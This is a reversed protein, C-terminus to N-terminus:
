IKKDPMNGLLRTFSEHVPIAIRKPEDDVVPPLTGVMKDQGNGIFGRVRDTYAELCGEFNPCDRKIQKLDESSAPEYTDNWGTYKHLHPTISIINKGNVFSDGLRVPVGKLQAYIAKEVESDKLSVFDFVGFGYKIKFYKEKVM